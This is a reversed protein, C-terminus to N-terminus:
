RRYARVAMTIHLVWLLLMGILLGISVIGLVLSTKDLSCSLQGAQCAHRSFVGAESGLGDARHM